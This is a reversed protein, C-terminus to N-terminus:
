GTQCVHHMTREATAHRRREDGGGKSGGGRVIENKDGAGEWRGGGAEGRGGGRGRERDREKEGLYARRRPWTPRRRNRASTWCVSVFRMCSGLVM